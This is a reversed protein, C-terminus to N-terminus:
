TMVSPLNRWKQEILLIQALDRSEEHRGGPPRLTIVRVHLAIPSSLLTVTSYETTDYNEYVGLASCFGLGASHKVIGVLNDRSQRARGPRHRVNASM